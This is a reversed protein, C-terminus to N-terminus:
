GNRAAGRPFARTGDVGAGGSHAVKLVALNRNSQMPSWASITGNLTAFIFVTPKGTSVEFGTGGNFTIATATAGNTPPIAVVLPQPQGAGNIILSVGGVKSNVWWPSSPTRTTGWAGMLNTDTVAAVGPVDSVLNTQQYFQALSGPCLGLMMGSVLAAVGLRQDTMGTRGATGNIRNTRM